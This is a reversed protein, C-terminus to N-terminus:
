WLQTLDNLNYKEIHKSVSESVDEPFYRNIADSDEMGADENWTIGTRQRFEAKFSELWDSPVVGEPVGAAELLEVDSPDIHLVLSQLEILENTSIREARLSARLEELRKM